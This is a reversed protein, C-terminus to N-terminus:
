SFKGPIQNWIEEFSIDYKDSIKEVAEYATLGYILILKIVLYLLEPNKAM